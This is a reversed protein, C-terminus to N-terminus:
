GDTRYLNLQQLIAGLLVAVPIIELRGIWMNFILMVKAADPMDPGTIGADLGVNSQASMVDFIVYEAPHDPSLTWLLVAVGVILCLVWLVFVVAAETYEAQVQEESLTRKGMQLQRVAHDPAFIDRVQWITGKILTLVRILKLGGVTSGAAAGTLMGLCLLFTAGASMARETGGGIAATGFGTNSAASVFQFFAARFTEEFTDFQGSADGGLLLVTTLLVSGIAFWGFVWRTQLDAYFNKIEGKLILYHVPFAISGAVMIPIVAYQIIPGYEGISAAHVSFGGTAIGTMGHNIAPWLPMGVAPDGNGLVALLEEVFSAQGTAAAWVPGAFLLLLISAVTLGLYIKWIEKVTSVVSPLVKSKKKRAESEFLTLSGSGPRALIAVTLVIVGVGGIWETFSRWWHLSRPLDDEVVAMTLGTSTFGSISEFFGNLPHRFVDTTDSIMEPTNAWAPLPDLYITWAIFIFPLGGLITLVGWASAATVMAELKGSSPADAYRQALGTGIAAMIGASVLFAPVAFFESTVVAVVASVVLMLSVVQLIRGVDRAVTSFTGM